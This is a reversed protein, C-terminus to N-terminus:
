REVLNIWLAGTPTFHLHFRPEKSLWRHIRPTKHSAHKDLLLHIELDPPAAEDVTDLFKRFEM